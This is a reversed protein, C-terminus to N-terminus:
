DWKVFVGAHMRHSDAVDQSMDYALGNWQNELLIDHVSSSGRLNSRPLRSTTLGRDVSKM